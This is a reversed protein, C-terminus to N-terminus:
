GGLSCKVSIQFAKQFLKAKQDLRELASDFEGSVHPRFRLCLSKKELSILALNFGDFFATYDLGDAFRLLSALRVLKSNEKQQEFVSSLNKRHSGALAALQVIHQRSLDSNGLGELILKESFVDHKKASITHGVDHLAAAEWLLIEDRFSFYKAISPLSLFLMCYNEVRSAHKQASCDLYYDAMQRVSNFGRNKVSSKEM